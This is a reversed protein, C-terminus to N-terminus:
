SNKIDHGSIIKNIFQSTETHFAVNNKGIFRNNIGIGLMYVAVSMRLVKNEKLHGFTDTRTDDDVPIHEATYVTRCTFEAM